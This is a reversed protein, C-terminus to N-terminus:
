SGGGVNNAHEFIGAVRYVNARVSFAPVFAVYRSEDTEHATDKKM